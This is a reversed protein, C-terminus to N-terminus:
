LRSTMPNTGGGEGTELLLAANATGDIIQKKIVRKPIKGTPGRPLQAGHWLFIRVPAKFKAVRGLCFERLSAGGLPGAGPRKVVAAAVIEGLRDDPLGFVACEAVDPHEYLASEVEACSINEGGRIILDKARDLIYVAGHEDVRAIDGTRFWGDAGFAEETAEPRNWYEKMNCVSRICLEGVSGPSLVNSPNDVEVVKLDVLVTAKGCSAPNAKYDVANATITIANTETLGYGQTAGARGKTKKAVLSGLMKPPPAGGGGISRLSTTDYKDFNPHTVLELSMTPVGTFATVREAEILRLAEAADWKYM